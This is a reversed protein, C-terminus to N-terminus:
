KEDFRWILKAYASRRIEVPGGPDGGFQAYHPQFLNQGGASLELERTIHWGLRTDMTQYSRVTQAPLASVYRYTQGFELKKPLNVYSQIAVQHRPSSGEYGAVSTPDNSGPRNELEMDLYSYSTRLEWWNTPKWDPSVEFGKTNGQIGNSTLLPLVAHAPAPSSELFPTGVQFSYLDSYNNYFLAADVYCHTTLLARYGTEYALLKESRFKPNGDVRLYVPLGSSMGAYDTLEVNEDLRSPTRVARTVSAWISQRSTSNWLLRATPQAEFGTYNNHELKSGLTLALRNNFLAIEDQAFGSYIQDTQQNPLFDITPVTQILNSPSWRAGVGWLFNQQGPLSLHHLFDIDFTTRTEGFEPEFHNTRDFYAQIQFDSKESVVRKWRGLLNGGSLYANGFANVQSPTSYLAYTTGEGVGERYIDGQFTVTDRDNGDWDIRFGAQGMRWEDFNPGAPHFEPGRIFGLGYVRYNLGQSDGSGYRATGIGTNSNGGTLSTMVGHTNKSSKTIINIIGDVANAGWITGGPGRIVEIRDIDELPTAQAQWYVGAFLPTYVSRGDILVLLKSALVAGFGRIGISWHDSDLQAVEVGPVLRLADPISTVGSRRIDEQTIVFIAAPTRWVQEPEKSTTTVEVNGLDALSLQTLPDSDHINQQAMVLRSQLLGLLVLVALMIRMALLWHESLYVLTHQPSRSIATNALPMAVHQKSIRSTIDFHDSVPVTATSTASHRWLM